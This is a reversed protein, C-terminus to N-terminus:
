VFDGPGYEPGALKMRAKSVDGPAIGSEGCFAMLSPEHALVFDLVGALFGPERAAERIGDAALGTISLFRQLMDPDGAIWGLTAVAVEEASQSQPRDNMM